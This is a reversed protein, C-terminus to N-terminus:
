PSAVDMVSEPLAMVAAFKMLMKLNYIIIRNRELWVEASLGFGALLTVTYLLMRRWDACVVMEM